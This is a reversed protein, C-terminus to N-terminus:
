EKIVFRPLNDCTDCTIHNLILSCRGSKPKRDQSFCQLESLTVAAVKFGKASVYSGLDAKRKRGHTEKSIRINVQILSLLGGQYEAVCKSLKKYVVFLVFYHLPFIQSLNENM